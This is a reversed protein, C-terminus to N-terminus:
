PGYPRYLAETGTCPHVKIINPQRIPYFQGQKCLLPTNTLPTISGCIRLKPVLHSSYDAECELQRLKLSVTVPAWQIYSKTPEM